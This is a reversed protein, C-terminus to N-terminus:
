ISCIMRLKSFRGREQLPVWKALLSHMVPPVVGQCLGAFVRCVCVLTYDGYRASVPIAVTSIACLGIAIGLMRQAGWRQAVMGGPIHTVVYGWFFSSLIM